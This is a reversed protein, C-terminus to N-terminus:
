NLEFLRLAKDRENQIQSLLDRRFMPLASARAAAEPLTLRLLEPGSAVGHRLARRRFERAWDPEGAPAAELVTRVSWGELVALWDARTLPRAPASGHAQAFETLWQPLLDGFRRGALPVARARELLFQRLEDALTDPLRALRLMDPLYPQLRKGLESWRGAGALSTFEPSGADPAAVVTTDSCAAGALASATASAPAAHEPPAHERADPVDATLAQHARWLRDPDRTLRDLRGVVGADLRGAAHAALVGEECLLAIEEGFAEAPQGADRAPEDDADALTQLLAVRALCTDEDLLLFQLRRLAREPSEAYEAAFDFMAVGLDPRAIPTANPNM